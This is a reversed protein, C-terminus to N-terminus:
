ICFFLKEQPEDMAFKDGAKVDQNANHFHLPLKVKTSNPYNLVTTGRQNVM